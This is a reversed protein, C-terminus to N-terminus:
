RKGVRKRNRRKRKRRRRWNHDVVIDRQLCFLRWKLIKYWKGVSKSNKTNSVEPYLQLAFEQFINKKSTIKRSDVKYSVCRIYYM